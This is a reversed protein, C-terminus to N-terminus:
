TATPAADLRVNKSAQKRGIAGDKQRLGWILHQRQRNWVGVKSKRVRRGGVSGRFPFDPFYWKQSGFLSKRLAGRPAM